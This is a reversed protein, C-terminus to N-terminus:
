FLTRVTMLTQVTLRVAHGPRAFSTQTPDWLIPDWGSSDLQGMPHTPHRVVRLSSRARRGQVSGESRSSRFLHMAAEGKRRPAVSPEPGTETEARVIETLNGHIEWLAECLYLCQPLICFVHIGHIEHNCEEHGEGETRRRPKGVCIPYETDLEKPQGDDKMEGAQVRRRNSAWRETPPTPRRTQLAFM